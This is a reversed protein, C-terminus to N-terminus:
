ELNWAGMPNSSKPSEAAEGLSSRDASRRQDGKTGFSTARLSSTGVLAALVRTFHPLPSSWKVAHSHSHSLVSRATIYVYSTSTLIHDSIIILYLTGWIDVRFEYNLNLVFLPSFACMVFKASCNQKGKKPWSDAQQPPASRPSSCPGLVRLKHCNQHPFYSIHLYPSISM